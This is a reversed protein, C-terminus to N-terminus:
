RTRPGATACICAVKRSLQSLTVPRTSCPSRYKGGRAGTPLWRACINELEGDLPLSLMCNIYWKAMVAASCLMSRETAYKTGLGGNFIVVELEADEKVGLPNAATKEGEAQDGGDDDNSGLCGSLLSVGPVALLGAAATRGLLKRRDVGTGPEPTESM